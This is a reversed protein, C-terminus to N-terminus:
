LRSGPPGSDIECVRRKPLAPSSFALSRPGWPGAIQIMFTLEYTAATANDAVRCCRGCHKSAICYMVPVSIVPILIVARSAAVTKTM